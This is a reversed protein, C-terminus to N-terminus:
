RWRLKMAEALGAMDVARVKEVLRCRRLGRTSLRWNQHYGRARSKTGIV